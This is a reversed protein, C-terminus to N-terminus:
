AAPTGKIADRVADLPINQQEGTALQRLRVTGNEVEEPGIVIIWPVGLSNAYKFQKKLKAKTPYLDVRLGAKRLAAAAAM